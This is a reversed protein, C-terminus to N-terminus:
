ELDDNERHTTNESGKMLDVVEAALFLKDRFIRDIQDFM